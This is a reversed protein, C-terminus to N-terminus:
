LTPAVISIPANYDTYISTIKSEGVLAESRYLLHDSTSIWLRYTNKLNPAVITQIVEYVMMPKGDLTDPGILHVQTDEVLSNIFEPTRSKAIMASMDFRSKEWKGNASKEYTGEPVVIIESKEDIIHMRNPAVFDATGTSTKGHTLTTTHVRYSKVKLLADTLAKLAASDDSALASQTAGVILFILACLMYRIKKDM